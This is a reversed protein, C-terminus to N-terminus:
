VFRPQPVLKIKATGVAQPTLAPTGIAVMLKTDIVYQRLGSVRFMDIVVIIQNIGAIYAIRELLFNGDCDIWTFFTETMMQFDLAITTHV